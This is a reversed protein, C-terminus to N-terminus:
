RIQIKLLKTTRHNSGDIATFKSYFIGRATPTGSLECSATTGAFGSAITCSKVLLGAPLLKATIRISDGLTADKVDITTKYYVNTRGRPLNTTTITPMADRLNTSTPTLRVTPSLLPTNIITPVLTPTPTSVIGVCSDGNSTPVCTMDRTFLLNSVKVGPERLDGYLTVTHIGATLLPSPIKDATNGNEYDVWEWIGSPMGVLDGILSCYHNDLRMWLANAANGKGMM